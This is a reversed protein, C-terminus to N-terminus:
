QTVTDQLAVDLKGPNEPPQSASERTILLKTHEGCGWIPVLRDAVHDARM